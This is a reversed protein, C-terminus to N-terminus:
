FILSVVFSSTSFGTFDQERNWIHTFNISYHLEDKLLRHTFSAGLTAEQFKFSEKEVEDIKTERDEVRNSSLLTITNNILIADNIRYLLNFGQTLLLVNAADQYEEEFTGLFGWKKSFKSELRFATFQGTGRISDAFFEFRSNLTATNKILKFENEFRLNYYTGFGDNFQLRPEFAVDFDGIKEIVSLTAGYDSQRDGRFAGRSYNSRRVRNKNYNSFMIKYKNEFNPLALDLDLDLRFSAGDLETWFVEQSITAQNRAQRDVWLAIDQSIQYNKQNPDDTAKGFATLSFCSTILILLFYM